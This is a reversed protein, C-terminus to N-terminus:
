EAKKVFEEIFIKGGKAYAFVPSDYSKSLIQKVEGIQILSSKLGLTLVYSENKKMGARVIGFCNGFVVVTGGAIIESGSHVDGVLIIHGSHHIKQGSRLNRLLVITEISDESKEKIKVLTQKEEYYETLISTVKLGYSELKDIIKPLDSIKEKFNEVKLMIKDGPQFFNKVSELKDNLENFLVDINEYEGIFLAIGSKLMRFDIM